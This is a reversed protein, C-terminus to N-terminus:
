GGVIHLFCGAETVSENDHVMASDQNSASRELKDRFVHTVIDDFHRPWIIFKARVNLGPTKLMLIQTVAQDDVALLPIDEKACQAGL